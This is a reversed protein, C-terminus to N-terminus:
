ESSKKAANFKEYALKYKPVIFKIVIFIHAALLFGALVRVLLEPALMRIGNMDGGGVFLFLICCYLPDLLLFVITLYYTVARVYNYKVSLFKNTMALFLYSMVITAIPGVLCFIGLQVRSMKEAYPEIQIGLGIINIKKFVGNSIAYLWHAGEHILYYCLIAITLAIWRRLNRRYDVKM